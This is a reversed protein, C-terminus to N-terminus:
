RYRAYVTTRFRFSVFVSSSSNTLYRASFETTRNNDDLVGYIRRSSRITWNEMGDKSRIEEVLAMRSRSTESKKKKKPRSFTYDVIAPYDNRNRSDWYTPCPSCRIDLFHHTREVVVDISSDFIGRSRRFEREVISERDHRRNKKKRKKERERDERKNM